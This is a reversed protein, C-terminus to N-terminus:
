KPSSEQPKLEAETAHIAVTGLGAVNEFMKGRGHWREREMVASDFASLCAGMYAALIFDPTNSVNEQSYRNILHELEKQFTM